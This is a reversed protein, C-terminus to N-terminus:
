GFGEAFIAGAEDPFEFILMIIFFTNKAIRSIAPNIRVTDSPSVNKGLTIPKHRHPSDALLSLNNSAHFIDVYGGGVAVNVEVPAFFRFAGFLDGM